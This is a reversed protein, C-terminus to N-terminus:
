KSLTWSNTESNELKVDPELTVVPRIGKNDENRILPYKVERWDSYYAINGFNEGQNTIFAIGFIFYSIEFSAMGPIREQSALWYGNAAGERILIDLIIQDDKYGDESTLEETILYDYANTDIEITGPNNKDILKSEGPLKFSYDKYNGKINVWTNGNDKSYKLIKETSYRWLFEDGYNFYENTYEEPNYNVLNNVDERTLSRASAAYTGKGYM